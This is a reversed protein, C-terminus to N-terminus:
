KACLFVSRHSNIMWLLAINCPEMGNKKSLKFIINFNLVNLKALLPLKEFINELIPKCGM